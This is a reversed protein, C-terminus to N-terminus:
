RKNANRKGIENTPLFLEHTRPQLTELMGLVDILKQACRSPNRRGAMWSLLTSPPVGLYRSMQSNSLGLRAKMDRLDQSYNIEM